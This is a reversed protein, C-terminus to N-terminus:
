GTHRFFPVIDDKSMFADLSNMKFSASLQPVQEFDEKNLYDRMGELLAFFSVEYDHKEVTKLFASTMAGAYASDIYADASTQRDMCGSIMVVSGSIDSDPNETAHLLDGVYRHPLDLVSGSHCCDMLSFFVCGEPIFEICEHLHDDTIMGATEHDLPVLVEDKYDSEDGSHDRMYYGHGSYHFFISKAHGRYAKIILKYFESLINQATPNKHVGDDALVVINKELFGCRETLFKKINLADNICGNLEGDQGVYNIGILLAYKSHRSMASYVVVCCDCVLRVVKNLGM